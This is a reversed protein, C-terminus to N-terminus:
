RFMGAQDGRVIWGKRRQRGFLELFPGACYKEVNEYFKSPKRSHERAPEVIIQRVRKSLREPPNGRRGEVVYEANQRSTFGLMMEFVHDDLTVGYENQYYSPVPKVWVAWIAKPEFGWARMIPVHAGTALFPGTVWFMLRSDPMAHRGVPLAAIDDLTMTEYHQSASRGTGKASRVAFSWPVDAVIVPFHALPLGRLLPTEPIM